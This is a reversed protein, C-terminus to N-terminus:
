NQVKDEGYIWSGDKAQKNVITRVANVSLKLWDANKTYNYGRALLRAGLLSANYVKSKDL